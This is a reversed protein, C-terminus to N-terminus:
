QVSEDPLIIPIIPLMVGLNAPAARTALVGGEALELLSPLSFEEAANIDVEYGLDELSAVTVRSLPNGADGVFGTM